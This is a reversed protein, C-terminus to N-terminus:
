QQLIGGVDGILHPRLDARQGNRHDNKQGHHDTRQDAAEVAEKHCLELQVGEDNRQARLEDQKGTQQQINLLAVILARGDGIQVGGIGVEYLSGQELDFSHGDGPINQEGNDKGSDHPKDPIFGGEALIHEREAGILFGGTNGADIYEGDGDAYECQCAGHVAEGAEDLAGTDGGIGGIGAQVVFQIGDRRADDATYRKYATDTLDAADDDTYQHQAEDEDTQQHDAYRLVQLVEDLAADNQEGACQIHSIIKYLLSIM